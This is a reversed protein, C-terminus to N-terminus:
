YEMVSYNNVIHIVSEEFYTTLTHFFELFTNEFSVRYPLLAVDQLIVNLEKGSSAFICAEFVYM